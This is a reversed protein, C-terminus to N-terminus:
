TGEQQAADAARRKMASHLWYAVGLVVAWPAAFGVIVGMVVLSVRLADLIPTV